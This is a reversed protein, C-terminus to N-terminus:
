VTGPLYLLLHKWDDIVHFVSDRISSSSFTDMYSFPDAVRYTSCYSSVLVRLAWTELQMHLLLHGLLGDNPPYTRPRTVIIHGLIPFHWSWFNSHTLQPAHHTSLIHEKLIANSIYVFFIALLFLYFKHLIKWGNYAGPYCLYKEKKLSYSESKELDAWM